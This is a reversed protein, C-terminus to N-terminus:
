VSILEFGQRPFHVHVLGCRADDRALIWRTESAAVLEGQVADRAYDTPAISVAKGINADQTQERGISRPASHAAEDFAQEPSIDSREGHGFAHMRHYWAAVRSHDPLPMKAVYHVFWLSHYASFDAACPEDGFLFDKVLMDDLTAWHQSTDITSTMKVTATRAMGIRDKLFKLMSFLGLQRYLERQIRMPPISGLVSMFVESDMSQAFAKVAADCQNVNLLALGTINAVEEAIIRSDCFVDAGIQAVPMKRYAGALPLVNPRPPMSPSLVSQWPLASYGLMLRTKESFPSMEYHHLIM